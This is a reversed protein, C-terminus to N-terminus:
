RPRTNQLIRIAQDVPENPDRPDRTLLDPESVGLADSLAELWDQTYPTEGNEVRSVSAGSTGMRDAVDEQSLELAERWQKFFTRKLPGHKKFRTAM